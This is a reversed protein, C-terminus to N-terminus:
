RGAMAGRACEFRGRAGAIAGCPDNLREALGDCRVARAIAGGAVAVAERGDPVAVVTAGDVAEGSLAVAAGVVAVTEAVGVM